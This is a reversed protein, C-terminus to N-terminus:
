GYVFYEQLTIFFIDYLNLPASVMIIKQHTKSTNCQFKFLNARSKRIKIWTWGQWGSCCVVPVPELGLYLRLYCFRGM